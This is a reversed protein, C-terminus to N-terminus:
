ELLLFELQLNRPDTLSGLAAIAPTTDTSYRKGGPLVQSVGSFNCRNQSLNKKTNFFVAIGHNGTKGNVATHLLWVETHTSSLQIAINSMSITRRPQSTGNAHEQWLGRVLETRCRQNRGPKIGMAPITHQLAKGARKEREVGM